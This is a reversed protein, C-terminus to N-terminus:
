IALDRLACTKEAGPRRAPHQARWWEGLQTLLRLMTAAEATLRYGLRLKEQDRRRYAIHEVLNNKRLHCLSRDLAKHDVRVSAMLQNYTCPGHELVELVRVVWRRSLLAILAETAVIDTM